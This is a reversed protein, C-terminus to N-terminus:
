SGNVEEFHKLMKKVLPIDKKNIQFPKNFGIRVNRLNSDTSDTRQTM